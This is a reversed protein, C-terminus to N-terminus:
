LSPMILLNFSGLIGGTFDLVIQIDDRLLYSIVLLLGLVTGTILITTKSVKDSDMEPRAIALVNKRIVIIYVSFAAVNLFVYFSVFYYVFDIRGKYDENYYKLHHEGMLFKTKDILENGFALSATIPLLIVTTGAVLFGIKMFYRIDSLKTLQKTIGPLSHHVMFTFILNSFVDEFFASNFYANGGEPALDKVGGNQGMIVLSGVLLLMISIFRVSIM